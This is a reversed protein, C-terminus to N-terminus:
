LFVSLSTPSQKYLTSCLNDKLLAELSFFLSVWALFLIGSSSNPVMWLTYIEIYFGHSYVSHCPINRRLIILIKQSVKNEGMERQILFALLEVWRLAFVLHLSDRDGLLILSHQHSHTLFFFKAESFPKINGQLLSYSCKYWSWLRDSISIDQTM